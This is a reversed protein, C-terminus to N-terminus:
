RPETLPEVRVSTGHSAAVQQLYMACGNCAPTKDGDSFVVRNLARKGCVDTSPPMIVRCTVADATTM